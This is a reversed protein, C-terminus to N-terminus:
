VGEAEGLSGDLYDAGEDHWAEAYEAQRAAVKIM